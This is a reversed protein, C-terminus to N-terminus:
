VPLFRWDHFVLRDFKRSGKGYGVDLDEAFGILLGVPEMDNADFAVADMKLGRAFAGLVLRGFGVFPEPNFGRDLANYEAYGDAYYLCGGIVVDDYDTPSVAVDLAYLAAFFM